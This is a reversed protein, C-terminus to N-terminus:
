DNEAGFDGRRGTGQRGPVVKAAPGPVAFSARHVRQDELSLFTNTFRHSNVDGASGQLNFIKVMGVQGPCALRGGLSSTIRDSARRLCDSRGFYISLGM